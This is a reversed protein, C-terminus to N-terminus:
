FAKSQERAKAKESAAKASEQEARMLSYAKPEIFSLYSTTEPWGRQVQITIGDGMKWVYKVAGLQANGSQTAPRGYKNAVMRAIREVQQTDMFSDFRYEAYAFAGTKAVYGAAFSSAEDMVAQPNYTDVWYADDVRIPALGGALFAQRLQARNAGQLKIGFLEIQPAAFAQPAMSTAIAIVLSLPSLKRM